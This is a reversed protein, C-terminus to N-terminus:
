PTAGIRQLEPLQQATTTANPLPAQQAQVAVHQMAMQLQDRTLFLKAPLNLAQTLFDNVEVPNISGVAAGPGLFQQKIQLNQVFGQLQQQKQLDYLPSQYEFRFLKKSFQKLNILGREMLIKAATEYVQAPLENILRSIDTASTRQARNERISIETASRVPTNIEGLPDVKFGDKIIQRMDMISQWVDPSAPMQMPELPNRMNQRRPIFTGAWRRISNPNFYEDTDYFMPPNAKYALSRMHDRMLQNLDQIMPLLDMAIGRGGAEGPRVRDRFVIIQKYHKEYEFLWNDQDEEICGYLLYKDADIKTQGYIVTVPDTNTDSWIREYCPGKYDPFTKRFMAPNFRRRFWVTDLVESYTNEPIINIAPISIYNLPHDDSESYCFLGAMGGCFDIMSGAVASALNSQNLYWFIKDNVDDLYIQNSAVMAPNVAQPNFTFRGWTRDKPLLLGHMDTGYQYAALIPTSDWISETLPMGDNRFNFKESLAYRDPLVYLYLRQFQALWNNSWNDADIFRMKLEQRSPQM